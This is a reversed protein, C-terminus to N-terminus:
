LALTVIALLLCMVANFGTIWYLAERVPNKTFDIRQFAQEVFHHAHFRADSIMERRVSGLLSASNGLENAELLNTRPFPLRRDARPM